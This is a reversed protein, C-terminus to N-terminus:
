LLFVFIVEVLPKKIFLLFIPSRILITQLLMGENSHYFDDLLLLAELVKLCVNSIRYLQPLIGKITKM